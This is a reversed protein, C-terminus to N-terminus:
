PQYMLRLTQINGSRSGTFRMTYVGAAAIVPVRLANKGAKVNYNGVQQGQMNFLCLTGQEPVVISFSGNSPNPYASVSVAPEVGSIGTAVANGNLKFLCYDSQGHNGSVDGNDSYSYGAILYSGDKALSIATGYDMDTGGLSKTWHISGSSTLKVVWCDISPDLAYLHNDKVDGDASESSGAVVYDGDAAQTVSYGVDDGSGGLAKQWQLTGNGDIKVVWIDSADTGASHNGTVDKDNSRTVGALIYGGDAAPYISNAMDMESGGYTKAWQLVGLSDTKIVYFDTNPLSGTASGNIYKSGAMIYGGDKTPQAAYLHEAVSDGYNHQWVIQGFSDLKTLTFDYSGNSGGWFSSDGTAGVIFGGDSTPMIAAADLADVINTQWTLDGTSNTKVVYCYYLGTVDMAYGGIAYGSDQTQVISCAKSYDYPSTYCHEWEIVGVTDTKVVWTNGDSLHIDGDTSYSTGAMVFGGDKAQRVASAMDMKSGGYSKQWIVSQGFSYPSTTIIFGLLLFFNKL